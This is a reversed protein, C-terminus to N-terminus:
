TTFRNLVYEIIIGYVGGALFSVWDVAGSTFFFAGSVILGLGVGRLVRNWDNKIIILNGALGIIVGMVLRNYWLAFLLLQNGQWGLRISGGIICFIGLVAGSLVGLVLRKNMKIDRGIMSATLRNYNYRLLM